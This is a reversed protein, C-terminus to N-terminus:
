EQNCIYNNFQELRNLIYRLRSTVWLIQKQIEPDNSRIYQETLRVCENHLVSVEAIETMIGTFNDPTNM